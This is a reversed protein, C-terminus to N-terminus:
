YYGIWSRTKRLRDWRPRHVVQVQGPRLRHRDPVSEDSPRKQLPGKIRAKAKAKAGPDTYPRKQGTVETELEARMDEPLGDAGVANDDVVETEAAEAAEQRARKNSPDKSGSSTGAPPPTEEM